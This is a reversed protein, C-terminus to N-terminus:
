RLDLPRGWTGAFALDSLPRRERPAAERDRLSEPLHDDSGRRGVAIVVYPTFEAPIGLARRASGVDFGGMQHVHLGDSHAQTTLQSVALGLEYAAVPRASGDENTTQTVALILVPARDAWVRNGEALTDYIALWTADPGAADRQGVLFRWPQANMASPAWRAAELLTAIMHADVPVDDYARTSWRDALVPHLGAPAQVTREDLATM